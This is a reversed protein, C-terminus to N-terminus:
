YINNNPVECLNMFESEIKLFLIRWFLKSTEKSPEFKGIPVFMLYILDM